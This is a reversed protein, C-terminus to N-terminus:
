GNHKPIELKLHLGKKSLVVKLRCFDFFELFNLTFIKKLSFVAKKPCIKEKLLSESKGSQFTPTGLFKPLQPLQVANEYKESLMVCKASHEYGYPNLLFIAGLSFFNPLFCFKEAVPM